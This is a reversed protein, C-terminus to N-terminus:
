MSRLSHGPDVVAIEMSEASPCLSDTEFRASSCRDNWMDAEDKCRLAWVNAACKPAERRKRQNSGAIILVRLRLCLRGPMQSSM